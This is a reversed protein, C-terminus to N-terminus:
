VIIIKLVVATCGGSGFIGVQPATNGGHYHLGCNQSSFYRCLIYM